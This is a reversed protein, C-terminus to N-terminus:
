LNHRSPLRVQSLQSFNHLHWLNTLRWFSYYICIYLSFIRERKGENHVQPFEEQVRM